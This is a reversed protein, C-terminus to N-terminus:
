LSNRRSRRQSTSSRAPVSKTPSATLFSSRSTTLSRDHPQHSGPNSPGKTWHRHHGPLAGCTRQSGKCPTRSRRPVMSTEPKFGEWSPHRHPLGKIAERRDLTLLGHFCLRGTIRCCHTPHLGSRQRTVGTSLQSAHEDQISDPNVLGASLDTSAVSDECSSISRVGVVTYIYCSGKTYYDSVGGSRYM